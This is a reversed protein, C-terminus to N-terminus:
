RSACAAVERAVSKPLPRGTWASLWDILRSVGERTGIRPRWGTADSFTRIDSVYWPQDGPRWDEFRLEPSLGGILDEILDLIELLSTANTPGGGINFARGSLTPMHQEALLMADILDGVFLLDRVQKGTGYITIPRDALAARLFHAVWGQDETGFQRPGYICSM